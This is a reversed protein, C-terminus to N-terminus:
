SLAGQTLLLRPWARRRGQPSPAPARDVQRETLLPGALRTALAPAARPQGATHTRQRGQLAQSTDMLWVPEPYTNGAPRSRSLCASPSSPGAMGARPQQSGGEAQAPWVSCRKDRWPLPVQTSGCCGRRYSLCTRPGHGSRFGRPNLRRMASHTVCTLRDRQGGGLASRLIGPGWGRERSRKGLRTRRM